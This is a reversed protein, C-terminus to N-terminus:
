KQNGGPINPGYILLVVMHCFHLCRYGFHQTIKQVVTNPDYSMAKANM